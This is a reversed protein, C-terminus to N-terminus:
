PMTEIYGCFGAALFVFILFAIACVMEGRPTLVIPKRNKM